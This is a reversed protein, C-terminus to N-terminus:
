RIRIFRYNFPELSNDSESLSPGDEEAGKAPILVVNALWVPKDTIKETQLSQWSIAIELCEESGEEAPEANWVVPLTEPPQSFSPQDHVGGQLAAQRVINMLFSLNPPLSPPAQLSKESDLTLQFPDIIRRQLSAAASNGAGKEVSIEYVHTYDRTPCLLIRAREFKEDMKGQLLVYLNSEDRLFRVQAGSAGNNKMIAVPQVRDWLQADMAGDIVPPRPTFSASILEEVDEGNLLTSEVAASRAMSRYSESSRAVAQFLDNAVATKGEDRKQLAVGFLSADERIRLTRGTMERVRAIIENSPADEFLSERGILYAPAPSSKLVRDYVSLAEEMNGMSKYIAGLRSLCRGDDPFFEALRRYLRLARDARGQELSYDAWAAILDKGGLSVKNRVVSDPPPVARLDGHYLVKETEIRDKGITSRKVTGRLKQWCNLLYAARDLFFGPLARYEPPLGLGFEPISSMKRIAERFAYFESENDQFSIKNAPKRVADQLFKYQRNREIGSRSGAHIDLMERILHPQTSLILANQHICWCPTVPALPIPITVSFIQADLYDESEVILPLQYTKTILDVFKRIGAQAAEKDNVELFLAGQNTAVVANLDMVPRMLCWSDGMWQFVDKELSFGSEDEWQHLGDLLDKINPLDSLFTQALRWLDKPGLINGSSVTGVKRPLYDEFAFPRPERSLISQLAENDVDLNLRTQASIVVRDNSDLSRTSVYSEFTQLFGMVGELLPMVDSLEKAANMKQLAQLNKFLAGGAAGMDSLNVFYTYSRNEPLDAVAKQYVKDEALFGLGEEWLDITRLLLTKSNSILLTSDKFTYALDLGPLMSVGSLSQIWYGYYEDKVPRISPTLSGIEQYLAGLFQEAKRPDNVESVYLFLGPVPIGELIPYFAWCRQDGSLASFGKQVNSQEVLADFEDRLIRWELIDDMMARWNEAAQEYNPYEESPEATRDYGSYILVDSPIIQDFPSAQVPSTLAAGFFLMLLFSRWRM